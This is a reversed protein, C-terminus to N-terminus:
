LSIDSKSSSNLTEKIQCALTAACLDELASGVSKFVTIDGASLRGAKDGRLLDSLDCLDDERIIGAKLPSIIDGAEALAGEYTDVYIRASQFVDDDAERMDPRYGGVLDVHTGLKLWRGKVLPERARTAVSIIDAQQVAAKLDTVVECHYDSSKAIQSVLRKAKDADRGWVMVKRFQHCAGHAEILYRALKGTGMMLLTKAGPSALKKAALASCAATRRATLEAGDFIAVPLGNEGDFLVYVGNISELGVTHNDPFVSVVKVGFSGSSKWSPMLLCERGKGLDLAQRPPVHSVGDKFTNELAPMLMSYSLYKKVDEATFFVPAKTAIDTLGKEAM